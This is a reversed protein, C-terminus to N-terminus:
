QFIPPQRATIDTAWVQNPHDIILERLLYPYVPDEKRRKSTHPGPLLSRLGMKKYYLREIRNMSVKYGLDKSLWTHMRGAGKYPHELYHEDARSGGDAADAGPETKIRWMAQLLARFPWHVAIYM